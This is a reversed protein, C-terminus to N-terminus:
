QLLSALRWMTSLYRWRESMPLMDPESTLVSHMKLQRATM